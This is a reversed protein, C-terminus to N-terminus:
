YIPIITKGTDDRFFDCDTGNPFQDTKIVHLDTVYVIHKMPKGYQMYNDVFIGTCDLIYTEAAKYFFSNNLGVETGPLVKIQKPIVRGSNQSFWKLKNLLLYDLM